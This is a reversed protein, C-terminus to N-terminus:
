CAQTRKEMVVHAFKRAPSPPSPPRAAIARSAAWADELVEASAARSRKVFFVTRDESRAFMWDVGSPLQDDGILEVQYEMM